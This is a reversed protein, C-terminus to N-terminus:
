TETTPDRAVSDDPGKPPRTPKAPSESNSVREAYTVADTPIKSPKRERFALTVDIQAQLRAPRRGILGDIRHSPDSVPPAGFIRFDLVFGSSLGALVAALIVATFGGKSRVMIM